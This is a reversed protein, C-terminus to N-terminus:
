PAPQCAPCYCTTRQRITTRQLPAGCGRRPCRGGNKWRHQFLWAPPPSGWAPPELHHALKKSPHALPKEAVHHLAGRCVARTERRLIAPDIKGAPTAPHRRTRWLIEDAMWNGVGPFFEQELLLPKIASRSHRDLIRIVLEITFAPDLAEPPLDVWPRDGAHLLIRGFQRYDNFVLIGKKLRLVFHDHAAPRYEDGGAYFLRGAMGLHIELHHRSALSFFLRKGHARSSRLTAGVLKRRLTSPAVDRFIRTRPHLRIANIKVRLGPDWQRRCFEVEALEPM